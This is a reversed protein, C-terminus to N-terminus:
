FSRSFKILNKKMMSEYSRIIKKELQNNYYVIDDKFYNNVLEDGNELIKLNPDIINFLENLDTIVEEFYGLNEYDNKYITFYLIKIGHDKAYKNKM